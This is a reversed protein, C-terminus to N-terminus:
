KAFVLKVFLCVVIGNVVFYVVFCYCVAINNKTKKVVMITVIKSIMTMTKTIKTMTMTMKIITLTMTMMTMTIAM